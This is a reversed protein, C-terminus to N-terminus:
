GARRATEAKRRRARRQATADFAGVLDARHRGVFPRRDSAAGAHLRDQRGEPARDAAVIPSLRHFLRARAASCRRGSGRLGDHAQRSSRTRIAKAVAPRANRAACGCVSNVVVLTTGAANKLAADVEDATRLEEVGISTLEARMPTVFREDYMPNIRFPTVGQLYAARWRRQQGELSGRREAEAHERSKRREATLERRRVFQAVGGLVLAFLCVMSFRTLLITGAMAPWDGIEARGTGWRERGVYILVLSM